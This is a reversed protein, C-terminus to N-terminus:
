SYLHKFREYISVLGNLVAQTNRDISEGFAFLMWDDTCTGCKILACLRNEPRTKYRYVIYTSLLSFVLLVGAVIGLIFWSM